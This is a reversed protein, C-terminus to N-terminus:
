GDIRLSPSRPKTESPRAGRQNFVAASDVPSGHELVQLEKKPTTFETFGCDFCIVLKPFVFVLSKDLGERGSFHIAVEGNLVSQRNSHCEKCKM